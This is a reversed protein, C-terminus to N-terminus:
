CSACSERSAVDGMNNPLYCSDSTTGSHWRIGACTVQHASPCSFSVNLARIYTPTTFVPVLCELAGSDKVREAGATNLCIAVLTTPM